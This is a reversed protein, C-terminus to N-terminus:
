NNLLDISVFFLAILIQFENFSFSIFIFKRNFNTIFIIVTPTQEFKRQNDIGKQGSIPQPVSFIKDLKINTEFPNIKKKYAGLIPAVSPATTYNQENSGENQKEKAMKEKSQYLFKQFTDFEKDFEPGENNELEEEEVNKKEQSYHPLPISDEGGQNVLNNLRYDEVKKPDGIQANINRLIPIFDLIITNQKDGKKNAIM